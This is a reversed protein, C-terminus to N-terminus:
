LLVVAFFVILEPNLQIASCPGILNPVSTPAIVKTM